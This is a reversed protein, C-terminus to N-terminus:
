DDAREKEAINDTDTNIIVTGTVVLLVGVANKITITDHFFIVAWVMSWVVAMSRNAYAVSLEFRKIMQQWLVAYIGLIVFEMGFFFLFRVADGKSASAEKSMVSSITYIMIVGQLLVVNKVKKLKKVTDDEQRLCM